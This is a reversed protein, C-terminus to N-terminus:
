QRGLVFLDRKHERRAVDDDILSGVRLPRLGVGARVLMKPPQLPYVLPAAQEALKESPAEVLVPDAFRRRRQNTPSRELPDAEEVLPEVLDSIELEPGADRVVM